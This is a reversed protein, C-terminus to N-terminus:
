HALEILPTGHVDSVVGTTPPEFRIFPELDPVGSRDFFVHHVLWAGPLLVLAVPLFVAGLVVVRRRRTATLRVTLRRTLSFLSRIRARLM